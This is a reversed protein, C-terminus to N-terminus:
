DKQIALVHFVMGKRVSIPIFKRCKERMMKLIINMLMLGDGIDYLDVRRKSAKYKIM